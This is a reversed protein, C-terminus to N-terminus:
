EIFPSGDPLPGVQGSGIVLGKLPLAFGEGRKAEDSRVSNWEPMLHGAIGPIRDPGGADEM